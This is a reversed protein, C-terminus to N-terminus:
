FHVTICLKGNQYKSKVSGNMKETLAKAISLGLGTTGSATNVTYFRDFLRESKVLDLNKASNEFRVTGDFDLEVKFDGDSYKAANSIINDFVRRLAGSDLLRFIKQEPICIKPTIGKNSFQTHFGIISQELISNICVSEKKLTDATATAFTYNFLEDTLNRMSDTRERIINLYYKQKKPDDEAFILDLYGCIATLPTRLDHSINAIASKLESDGYELRLRERRLSVLQRNIRAALKRIAKGGSSVSILTNTDTKLKNELEDSVEKISLHLCLIDIGLLILVSFLLVTVVVCWTEM